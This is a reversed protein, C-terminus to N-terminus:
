AHTSPRRRSRLWGLLAAGILVAAGSWGSRRTNIACGDGDSSAHVAEYAESQSAAITVLDGMAVNADVLHLGWDPTLDGGINDIRADQPDGDVTISLYSYGNDVRCEAQLMGPLAVFPTAIVVGLSPDIWAPPIPVQFIPLAKGDAPFYGHLDSGGHALQAPNTCAAQWGEQLSRGFRSNSPPPATARFSVYSIVCGLDSSTHCLPINAFHGGVDAGVPVQFNTGLLMASVLRDRLAPNPDIENRILTILRSAGQSHGILLVGRGDNDNAIYHKWADLIDADALASDAPIPNGTLAGVLATLTVQRYVPAFVRCVSGLRAAQQRAVFIEQDEGAVFDSNGSQDTSITPYLYFCDIQPDAAPAWPEVEVGGDGAIFTTEMERDCPDDVDPRCVWHDPDAYTESFYGAYPNTPQAIASSASLLAIGLGAILHTHLRMM